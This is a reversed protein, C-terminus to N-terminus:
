RLKERLRAIAERPTNGDILIQEIGGREEIEKLLRRLREEYVCHAADAIVAEEGVGALLLLLASLAYAAGRDGYFLACGNAAALAKLSCQAQESRVFQLLDDATGVDFFWKVGYSKLRKADEDRPFGDARVFVGYRTFHKGDYRLGGLDHCNQVGDLRIRRAGAPAIIKKVLRIDYPANEEGCDLTREVTAAQLRDHAGLPALVRQGAQVVFDTLYWYVRDCVNEDEVFRLAAFRYNM